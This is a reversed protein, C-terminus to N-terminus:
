RLQVEALKAMMEDRTREAACSQEFKPSASDSGAGLTLLRTSAVDIRKVNVLKPKLKGFPSRSVRESDTATDLLAARDIASLNARDLM